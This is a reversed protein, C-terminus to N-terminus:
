AAKGLNSALMKRGRHLRSMVTGMPVNAMGAMERYKLGEIDVKMIADRYPAPLSEVAERVQNGLLVEEAPPFSGAWSTSADKTVSNLRRRMTERARGSLFHNTLIRRLWARMNTGPTFSEKNELAKVMADHALDEADQRNRVMKLGLYILFGRYSALEQEFTM